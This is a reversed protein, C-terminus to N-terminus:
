EGVELTIDSSSGDHFLIALTRDDHNGPSWFDLWGLLASAPNDSELVPSLETWLEDWKVLSEIKADTEFKPDTIGDTMAIISTFDPVIVVKIRNIIESPDLMSNDLFRTQGAFEGSDARGLVKVENGQRYVGVGGDGVWYAAIFHGASVKKHITILLTTSFDKYSTGTAEAEKEIANVADVAAHGFIYYLEDNILKQAKSPDTEKLSIAEDIKKGKEETVAKLVSDTAVQSAILSGKRSSKASGAGDAVALIRWGNKENQRLCFDDDRFSGVHAHSRGRKSAAIMSLGDSGIVSSEVEDEKWYPDKKDSELNKWLTKPDPNVILKCEGRMTPDTPLAGEFNFEVNIPFEGSVAPIGYLESTEVNFSLGLGEPVVAGLVKVAKGSPSKGEIKGIFEVNQRGNATVSFTTRIQKLEPTLMKAPPTSVKPVEGPRLQPPQFDNQSAINTLVPESSASPTSDNSISCDFPESKKVEKKPTVADSPIDLVEVEVNQLTPNALEEDNAQDSIKENAVALRQNLCNEYLNKIEDVFKKTVSIADDSKFFNELLDLTHENIQPEILGNHSFLNRIVNEHKEEM